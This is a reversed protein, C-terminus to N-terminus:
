TGIHIEDARFRERALAPSGQFARDKWFSGQLYRVMQHGKGPCVLIANWVKRGALNGSPLGAGLSPM